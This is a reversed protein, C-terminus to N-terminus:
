QIRPFESDTSMKYKHCFKAITVGFLPSLKSGVKCASLYYKTLYTHIYM